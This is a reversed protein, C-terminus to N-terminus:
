KVIQTAFGCVCVNDTIPILYKVNEVHEGDEKIYIRESTILGALDCQYYHEYGFYPDCARLTIKYEDDVKYRDEDIYCETLYEPDTSSTFGWGIFPVVNVQRMPVFFRIKDKGVENIKSRLEVENV